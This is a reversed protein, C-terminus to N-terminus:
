DFLGTQGNAQKQVPIRIQKQEVRGSLSTPWIRVVGYVGDFGPEIVIDGTRVKRIGEATREGGVNELEDIPAKLLITLESGFHDILKKYDNSVRESYTNTKLSEALIELLPVLSKFDPRDEPKFGESRSKDALQEVRHMVGITLKKKCQPCIIGEKATEIPSHRVNCNRHGTFHYKGEEPFFEVTFAVRPNRDAPPLSSPGLSSPIETLGSVSQPTQSVSSVPGAAASDVDIDFQQNALSRDSIGLFRGIGHDIHVVLDGVQIESLFLREHGGGKAPFKARKTWTPALKPTVGLPVIYVEKLNKIKTQTIPNFMYLNEITEGILDVRVPTKYRELWLDILGGRHGFQGVKEPTSSGIKEYGLNALRKALTSTEIKEKLKITFGSKEMEGVM